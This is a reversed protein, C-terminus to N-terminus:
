QILKVSPTARAFARYTEVGVCVIHVARVVRTNHEPLQEMVVFLQWIFSSVAVIWARPDVNFVLQLLMVYTKIGLSFLAAQLTRYADSNNLFKAVEARTDDLAHKTHMIDRRVADGVERTEALSRVLDIFWAEFVDAQKHLTAQTSEAQARVARMTERAHEQEARMAETAGVLAQLSAASSRSAETVLALTQEASEQRRAHMEQWCLTEAHRKHALYTTFQESAMARICQKMRDPLVFSLLTDWVSSASPDSFTACEPPIPVAVSRGSVSYECVMAAVAFPSTSEVRACDLTESVARTVARRCATTEDREDYVRTLAYDADARAVDTTAALPLRAATQTASGLVTAVTVLLDLAALRLAAM